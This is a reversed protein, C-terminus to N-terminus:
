RLITMSSILNMSCTSRSYGVTRIINILKSSIDPGKSFVNFSLTELIFRNEKVAKLPFGLSNV